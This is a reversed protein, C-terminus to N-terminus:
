VPGKMAVVVDIANIWSPIISVNVPSLRNTTTGDGLQGNSNNGWCMIASNNTMACTHSNGASVKTFSAWAPSDVLQPTQHTISYGDGIQGSTGTGWCMIKTDNRVACTHKQGADFDIM